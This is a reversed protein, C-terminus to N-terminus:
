SSTYQEAIAAYKDYVSQPTLPREASGETSTDGLVAQLAPTNSFNFRYGVLEGNDLLAAAGLVEPGFHKAAFAGPTLDALDQATDPPLNGPTALRWEGGKAKPQRFLRM